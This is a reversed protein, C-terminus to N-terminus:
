VFWKRDLCERLLLRARHLRVSLNKPTIGVVGCIESTSTGGVERLEFVQALHVPLGAICEAVVSWFESREVAQDAPLTWKRSPGIWKGRQDFPASEMDLDSGSATARQRGAQRHSDVIKRRLIGILWTRLSARGDFSERARWAALLADQVLDEAVERQGVRTVAFRLLADGHEDVWKTPDGLAEIESQSRVAM